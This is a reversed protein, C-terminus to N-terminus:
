TDRVEPSVTLPWKYNDPRQKNVFNLNGTSRPQTSKLCEKTRM